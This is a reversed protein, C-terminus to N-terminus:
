CSRGGRGERQHHCRYPVQMQYRWPEGQACVVVVKGVATGEGPHIESPQLYAFRWPSVEGKERPM